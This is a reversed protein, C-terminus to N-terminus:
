CDGTRYGQYGYFVDVMEDVFSGTAISEAPLRMRLIVDASNADYTGSIAADVAVNTNPLQCSFSGDIIGDRMSHELTICSAAPNMPFASSEPARAMDSTICRSDSGTRGIPFSGFPTDPEMRRTGTVNNIQWDFEWFGANIPNAAQQVPPPLEAVPEPTASPLEQETEPSNESPETRIDAGSTPSPGQAAAAIQEYQRQDNLDSFYMGVLAVLGAAVIMGGILLAKNTGSPPVGPATEEPKSTPTSASALTFGCEGCFRDGTDYGAQCEPCQPM